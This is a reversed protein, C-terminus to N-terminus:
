RDFSFLNSDPNSKGKIKDALIRAAIVSFTIGNGGFGLAFLSNPLAYYEGIFPLGDKTSGFTGTWSFEAKLGIHPFLKEFDHQLAKTKREIKKDRLRPDHFEEDRGGVIIRHDSTNRMYLYPQKTEWLLCDAYWYQKDKGQETAIAYTSSLNVIKKSIYKVAEYGTAYLLNKAKITFGNETRCVVGSKNHNIKELRTRDYVRLGRGKNYQLLAHTIQYADTQASHHSYLAMESSFGFRKKILDKSWLQVSFGAQKHLAYEKAILKADKKYSAYFLTPKRVFDKFGIQACLSEIEDVSDACLRYARLAKEKGIKDIMESLPVDVQYQLLATSACTSGLGITRGDVLMCDIGNQLLYHAALAGSIGGGAILVDTRTDKELKPYNYPLGSRVLWLPYGSRLDM